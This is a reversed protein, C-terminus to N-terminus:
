QTKAKTFGIEGEPTLGSDRLGGQWEVILRYMPHTEQAGALSSAKKFVYSRVGAPTEYLHWVHTIEVSNVDTWNTKGSVVGVLKPTVLYIAHAKRAAVAKRWARWQGIWRTWFPIRVKFDEPKM